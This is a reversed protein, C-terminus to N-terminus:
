RWHNLVVVDNLWAAGSNELKNVAAVIHKPKLDRKPNNEYRVVLIGPHRGGATVVLRHLDSFDRSDATLVVLDSRIAYELHCADSRGSLGATRPLEVTHGAKRLLGFLSKDTRNDDLYIRM